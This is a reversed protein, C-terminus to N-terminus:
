GLPSLNGSQSDKGDKKRFEDLVERAKEFQDAPVALKIGGIANTLFMNLGAIHDDIMYVTLENAELLSKVLIIESQDSSCFVIETDGFTLETQPEKLPISLNRKKAEDLLIEYAEAEFVAPGEKLLNLIESDEMEIYHKRLEEKENTDM